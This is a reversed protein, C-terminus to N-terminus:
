VLLCRGDLDAAGTCTLIDLVGSILNAHNTCRWLEHGLWLELCFLLVCVVRGGTMCLDAAVEPAM